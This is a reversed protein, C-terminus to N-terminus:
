TDISRDFVLTSTISADWSNRLMPALLRVAAWVGSCGHGFVRSAGIGTDIGVRRLCDRCWELLIVIKRLLDAVQQPARVLAMSGNKLLQAASFVEGGDLKNRQTRDHLDARARDDINDIGRRDIRGGGTAHNVTQACLIQQLDCTVGVVAAFGQDFDRSVAFPHDRIHDGSGFLYGLRGRFLQALRLGYGKSKKYLLHNLNVSRLM